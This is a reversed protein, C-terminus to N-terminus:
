CRGNMSPHGSGLDIHRMGAASEARMVGVARPGSRARVENKARAGSGVKARRRVRAEHGILNRNDASAGPRQIGVTGVKANRLRLADRTPPTMLTQSHLHGLENASNGM